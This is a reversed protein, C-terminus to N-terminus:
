AQGRSVPLTLACVECILTDSSNGKLVCKPTRALCERGRRGRGACCIAGRCVRLRPTNAAPDSPAAQNRFPQREVACMAAACSTKDSSLHLGDERGQRGPGGLGEQRGRCLPPCPCCTLSVRWCAHVNQSSSFHSLGPPFVTERPSVALSVSVSRACM